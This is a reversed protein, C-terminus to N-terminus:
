KYWTELLRVDTQWCEVDSTYKTFNWWTLWCELAAKFIIHRTQTSLDHRQRRLILYNSNYFKGMLMDGVGEEEIELDDVYSKKTLAKCKLLWAAQDQPNKELLQSCLEICSDYKQRNFRSTALFFLDM